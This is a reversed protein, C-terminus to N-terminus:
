MREPVEMGLLAMGDKIVKGVTSALTARFMKEDETDAKLISISQYFTNFEKVLDYLYNALRAPNYEQASEEVIQPFRYLKLIIARESSNIEGPRNLIRPPTDFNRLVSRIRAHTYQIFPGTHGNFDISEVPDFLMNKVPDVKLLFYKLASLGIIEHLADKQEQDIGELKGLEATIRGASQVMEEMMDDADVVTGERSKMKGEPLEVMGYSLHHCNKAWDYGLKQLLLFLVKFHYEQENGVTYIMRTVEPFDRYRLIATGLDQTMYVATGDKRLILKQDLGEDTLDAWVSGDEHRTFAGTELGKLAVEKGVTWTDSEYYLKDFEVGMREYTKDFGAYVWGNMREWLAYTEADNQEWLLLTKRAELMIPAQDKATEEDVGEAILEAVQAKYTRDFEVYYKGVLHDGKMDSSEPTEGNGFKQWAVMSKCIHIGRDNVIQVRRVPHGAAHLINAVSDGLFINRLHGLHLPKNTNPSAYEVIILGKSDEVQRGYSPNDSMSQLQDAWYDATMKLNIFGKVVSFGAVTDINQTLYEGIDTATQEPSRKAFRVFPFVVVTFEGEFEKRTDQIQVEVPDVSVDFLSKLADSVVEAIKADMDM